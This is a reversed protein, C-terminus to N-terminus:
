RVPGGFNGIPGNAARRGAEEPDRRAGQRLRRRTGGTVIRGARHQQRHNAEAPDTPQDWDPGGAHVPHGDRRGSRFDGYLETVTAELVQSGPTQTGPQSVSRFLGARDLWQAIAAGLMDGPSAIFGNCFDAAYRVEDVRVVLAKRAFSPAVRVKGMRLTEPRRSTAPVAPPPPSIVYTRAEPVPKGIACGALMLVLACALTTRGTMKTELGEV